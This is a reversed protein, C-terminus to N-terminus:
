TIIPQINENSGEKNEERESLFRKLDNDAQSFDTNRRQGRFKEYAEGGEPSNQEVDSDMTLSKFVTFLSLSERSSSEKAESDQEEEASRRRARKQATSGHAVRSSDHWWLKSLGYM